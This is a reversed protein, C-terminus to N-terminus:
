LPDSVKPKNQKRTNKELLPPTKNDNKNKAREREREATTPAKETKRREASNQTVFRQRAPRAEVRFSFRGSTVNAGTGFRFVYPAYTFAASGLLRPGTLFVSEFIQM